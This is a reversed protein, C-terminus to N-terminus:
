SSRVIVTLLVRVKGAIICGYGNRDNTAGAFIARGLTLNNRGLACISAVPVDDIQVFLYSTRM